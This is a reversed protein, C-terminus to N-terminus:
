KDVKNSFKKKKKLLHFRGDDPVKNMQVRISSM